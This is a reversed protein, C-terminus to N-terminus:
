RRNSPRFLDCFLNVCLYIPGAVMTGIMFSITRLGYCEFGKMYGIAVYSVAWGIAFSAALIVGDKWTFSELSDLVDGITPGQNPPPIFIYM